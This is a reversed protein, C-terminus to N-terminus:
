HLVTKVIFERRCVRHGDVILILVDLTTATVNIEPRKRKNIKLYGVSTALFSIFKNRFSVKVLSTWGVWAKFRIWYNM